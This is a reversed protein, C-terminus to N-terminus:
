DHRNRDELIGPARRELENTTPHALALEHGASGPRRAATAIPNPATAILAAPPDHDAGGFRRLAWTLARRDPVLFRPPAGAADPGHQDDLAAWGPRRLDDDIGLVLREEADLNTVEPPTGLRFWRTSWRASLHLLLRDRHPMDHDDIMGARHLAELAQVAANRSIGAYFGLDHIPPVPGDRQVLALATAVVSARRWIDLEPPVPPSLDAVPQDIDLSPVRLHGGQRDLWGVGAADLADRHPPRLCGTVLLTSGPDTAQLQTVTAPTSVEAEVVDLHTGDDLRVGAPRRQPRASIGLERLVLCLEAAAIFSM